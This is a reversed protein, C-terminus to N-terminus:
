LRRKCAFNTAQQRMDTSNFEECMFFGLSELACKNVLELVWHKVMMLDSVERAPMSTTLYDPTFLDGTGLLQVIGLSVWEMRKDSAHVTRELRL